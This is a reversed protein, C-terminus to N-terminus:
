ETYGYKKLVNIVEDTFVKKLQGPPLKMIEAVIIDLDAARETREAISKNYALIKARLEPKM